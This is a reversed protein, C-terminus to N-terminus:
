NIIEANKSFIRLISELSRIESYTEGHRGAEFLAVLDSSDGKRDQYKLQAMNWQPMIRGAAECKGQLVIQSHRRDAKIREFCAKVKVEDGELLQMFYDERAVLLGTIQDRKNNKRSVHLIDDIFEKNIKRSAKSTYVLNFLSNMTAIDADKVKEDVIQFFSVSSRNFINLLLAKSKM